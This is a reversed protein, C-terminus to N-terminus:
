KKRKIFNTFIKKTVIAALTATFFVIAIASIAIFALIDIMPTLM